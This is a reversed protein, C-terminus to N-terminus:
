RTGRRAARHMAKVRRLSSWPGAFESWRADIIGNAADLDRAAVFVRVPSYGYSWSRDVLVAHIGAERLALKTLQSDAMSTRHAEVIADPDLTTETGGLLRVIRDKWRV